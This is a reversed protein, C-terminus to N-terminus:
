HSLKLGVIGAVILGVSLLRAVGAPEKFLVIGRIVTGDRRAQRVLTDVEDGPDIIIGEGTSECALLFGNKFFPPVAATAM